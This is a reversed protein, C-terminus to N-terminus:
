YTSTATEPTPTTTLSSPCDLGISHFEVEALHLWSSRSEAIFQLTLVRRTTSYPICVRVLSNCSTSPPYYTGICREGSDILRIERISISWEPCNFLVVEIHALTFSFDFTMISRSSDMKLTLLESAWGDGDLNTLAPIACDFLVSTWPRSCTSVTGDGNYETINCNALPSSGNM